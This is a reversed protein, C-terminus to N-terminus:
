SQISPKTITMSLNNRNPFFSAFSHLVNASALFTARCVQCLIMKSLDQKPKEHGQSKKLKEMRERSDSFPFPLILFDITCISRRSLSSRRSAELWRGRKNREKCLSFFFSKKSSLFIKQFFFSYTM